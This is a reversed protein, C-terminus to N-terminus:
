SFRDGSFSSEAPTNEKVWQMAERNEKNLSSLLSGPSYFGILDNLMVSFLFVALITKIWGNSFDVSSNNQITPDKKKWRIHLSVWGLWQELTMGALLAVPITVSRQSSRPDFLILTLWWVPLVWNGERFAFFLGVLALLQFVTQNM